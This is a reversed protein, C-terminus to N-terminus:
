KPVPNGVSIFGGGGSGFTFDCRIGGLVQKVTLQYTLGDQSRGSGSYGHNLAPVLQLQGLRLSERLWQEVQAQTWYGDAELAIQIGSPLQGPGHETPAPFPPASSLPAGSLPASDIGVPREPQHPIIGAPVVNGPALEQEEEHSAVIRGEPPQVEPLDCGSAALFCITFLYGPTSLRNMPSCRGADAKATVPKSAM